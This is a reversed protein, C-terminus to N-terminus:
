GGRSRRGRRDARAARDESQERRAMGSCSPLPPRTRDNLMRDPDVGDPGYKELQPAVARWGLAGDPYLLAGDGHAVM